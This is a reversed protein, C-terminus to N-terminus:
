VCLSREAVKAFPHFGTRSSRLAVRLFVSFAEVREIMKRRAKQRRYQRSTLLLHWLVQKQDANGTWTRLELAKLIGALKEILHTADRRAREDLELADFIGLLLQGVRDVHGDVELEYGTFRGKNPLAKLGFRSHVETLIEEFSPLHAM